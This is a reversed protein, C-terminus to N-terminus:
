PRCRGGVVGVLVEDSEVVSSPEQGIVVVAEAVRELAVGADDVGRRGDDRLREGIRERAAAAVDREPEASEDVSAQM